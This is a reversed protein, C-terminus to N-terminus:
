CLKPFSDICPKSSITSAHNQKTQHGETQAAEGCNPSPGKFNKGGHSACVLPCAELNADCPSHARLCFPLNKNHILRGTQINNISPKNLRKSTDTTRKWKTHVIKNTKRKPQKTTFDKANEKGTNQISHRDLSQGGESGKEERMVNKVKM